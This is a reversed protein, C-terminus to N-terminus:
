AAHKGDAGNPMVEQRMSLMTEMRKYLDRSILEQDAWSQMHKDTSNICDNM